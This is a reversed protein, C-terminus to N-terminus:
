ESVEAANVTTPDELDAAMFRHLRRVKGAIAAFGQASLTQDGDCLAEGPHVEVEVILGDAGAAM